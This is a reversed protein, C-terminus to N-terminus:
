IVGSSDNDTSGFGGMHRGLPAAADHQLQQQEQEQQEVMHMHVHPRFVLQFGRFPLPLPPAEPDLQAVAVYLNNRYGPDIIGVSNALVYGTKSLSSRPVLEAYYGADISRIRIGTDYLTVRGHAYTKHPELITVDYGVDSPHAKTPMVADPRTREIVCHPPSPRNCGSGCGSGNAWACFAPDNSGLVNGVWDMTESQMPPTLRVRVVQATEHPVQYAALSARVSDLLSPDSSQFTCTKDELNLAHFCTRMRTWDDFPAM